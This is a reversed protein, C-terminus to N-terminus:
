VRKCSPTSARSIRRAIALLVDDLAEASHVAGELVAGRRMAAHSGAKCATPNERWSRTVGLTGIRSAANALKLASSRSTGAGTSGISALSLRSAGPGRFSGRHSLRLVLARGARLEHHRPPGYRCQAEICASKTLYRLLRHSRMRRVHSSAVVMCGPGPMRRL